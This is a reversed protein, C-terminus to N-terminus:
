SPYILNSDIVKRNTEDFLFSQIQDYTMYLNKKETKDYVVLCELDDNATMNDLDYRVRHLIIGSAGNIQLITKSNKNDNVYQILNNVALANM